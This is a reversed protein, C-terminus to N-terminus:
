RKDVVYRALDLAIEAAPVQAPVHFVGARSCLETPTVYREVIGYRDRRPEYDDLLIMTGPRAKLLCVLFCAVRFRGDVLVLDPALGEEEIKRWVTTSYLPWKRFMSNDVPYGWERTAGINAIVMHTRIGKAKAEAEVTRRVARAFEADSEVSFVNRVGLEVALRTSGGAGYELFCQSRSLQRTLLSVLAAPMHPKSPIVLGQPADTSDEETL